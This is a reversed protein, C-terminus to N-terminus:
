PPLAMTFEMLRSSPSRRMARRSGSILRKPAAATASTMSSSPCARVASQFSRTAWRMWSMATPRWPMSGPSRSKSMSVKGRPPPCSSRRPSAFSVSSAMRRKFASSGPTCAMRPTELTEKPSFGAARRTSLEAKKASAVSAPSSAAMTFARWIRGRFRMGSSWSAAARSRMWSRQRSPRSGSVCKRERKSSASGSGARAAASRSSAGTSSRRRRRMTSPSRRPSSSSRSSASPPSSARAMMLPCRSSPIFSTPSSNPAPRMCSGKTSRLASVIFAATRWRSGCRSRASPVSLPRMTSAVTRPSTCSMPLFRTSM